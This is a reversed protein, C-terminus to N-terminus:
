GPLGKFRAVWASVAPYDGLVLENESSHEAFAVYPFVAIDDIAPTAGSLWDTGNGALEAELYALVKKSGEIAGAYTQPEINWGFRKSVRVQTGVFLFM